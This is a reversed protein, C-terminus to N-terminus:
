HVRSFRLNVVRPAQGLFGLVYELSREQVSANQVALLVDGVKVGASAASGNPDIEAEVVSEM